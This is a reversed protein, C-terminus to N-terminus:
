VVRISNTDGHPNPAHETAAPDSVWQHGDVVFRYEYRGSALVLRTRWTGNPDKQLPTGSSDWDNFTGAVAVAEADPAVLKFETKKHATM